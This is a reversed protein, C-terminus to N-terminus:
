VAIDNFYSFLFPTRKFKYSGYKRINRQITCSNIGLEKSAERVCWFFYQKGNQTNYCLLGKSSPNPNKKNWTSVRESIESRKLKAAKLLPLVLEPREKFRIKANESIKLRTEPSNPKGIYPSFNKKALLVDKTKQEDTKTLQYNKQSISMKIRSEYSRKLGRHADGIKDKTEQSHKKISGTIDLNYGFEKEYSRFMDCYIGELVSLTEINKANEYLCSVKFNNEGYKNFSFQLYSNYHKNRRLAKFHDSIRKGIGYTTIGIYCKGNVINQICYVCMNSLRNYDIIYQPKMNIRRGEM